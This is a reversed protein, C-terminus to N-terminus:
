FPIVNLKRRFFNLIELRTDVTLEGHTAEKGFRPFNPPLKWPKGTLFVSLVPGGVPQVWHWGDPNVMEYYSDTGLEVVTLPPPASSAPQPAVGVAMRYCGNEPVEAIWAASPVTHPHYLPKTCPHIRHLNIRHDGIQCWVRSSM